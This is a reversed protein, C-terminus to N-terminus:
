HKSCFGKHGDPLVWTDTQWRLPSFQAKQREEVEWIKHLDLKSVLPIGPFTRWAEPPMFPHSHHRTALLFDLMNENRFLWHALDIGLGSPSWLPKNCSTSATNNLPLSRLPVPSGKCSPSDAGRSSLHYPYDPGRAHQCSPWFMHGPEAM